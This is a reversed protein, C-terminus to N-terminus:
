GGALIPVLQIRDGPQLISESPIVQGSRVAIYLEPDLGIRHLATSLTIGSSIPYEKQKWILICASSDDPM